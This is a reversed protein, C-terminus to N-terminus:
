AQGCADSPGGHLDQRDGNRACRPPSYIAYWATTLDKQRRQHYGAAGPLGDRLLVLRPQYWDLGKEKQDSWWWYYM